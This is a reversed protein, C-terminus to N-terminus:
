NLWSKPPLHGWGMVVWFAPENGSQYSPFPELFGLRNLKPPDPYTAVWIRNMPVTAMPLGAKVIQNLISRAPVNNAAFSYKPEGPYGIVSGGRGTWEPHRVIKSVMVWLDNNAWGVTEPDKDFSEITVNLPNRSDQMISRQFVHIVGDEMKWDYGSQTSVVKQIIETVTADTWSLQIPKATEVSKIWEVGMPFRFRNSVQLLAEIFTNAELSYTPVRETISIPIPAPPRQALACTAIALLVVPKTSM